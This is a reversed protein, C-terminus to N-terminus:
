AATKSTATSSSSGAFAMFDDAVILNSSLNFDGHLPSNPKLAYNIVNSLDGNLIIESQGYDATFADFKMKDQNFSFVGTKVVFPKPFLDSTLTLNKVRMTGSNSLQDYRGATVDSQKGQLDFDTSILGTVNYGKVAFVQYIKGIDLTGQSTVHYQLDAFNQLSARLLFPQVEFKFSIPKIFIKM